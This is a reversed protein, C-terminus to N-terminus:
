FDTCRGKREWDNYRTPEPFRGGRCPGGWERGRIEFSEYPEVFMEEYEIEDMDLSSEKDVGCAGGGGGANNPSADLSSKKDVQADQFAAFVFLALCRFSMVIRFPFLTLM